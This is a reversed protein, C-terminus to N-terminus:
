EALILVLVVEARFWAGLMSLRLVGLSSYTGPTLEPLLSTFLCM